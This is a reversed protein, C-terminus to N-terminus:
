QVSQFFQCSADIQQNKERVNSYYVLYEDVMVLRQHQTLTPISILLMNVTIESIHFSCSTECSLQLVPFIQYAFTTKKLILTYFKKDKLLKARKFTKYIKYIFIQQQLIKM